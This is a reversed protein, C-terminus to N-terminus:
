ETRPYDVAAHGGAPTGSKISERWHLGLCLEWAPFQWLSNPNKRESWMKRYCNEGCERIESLRAEGWHDLWESFTPLEM